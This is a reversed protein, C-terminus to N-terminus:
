ASYVSSLPRLSDSWAVPFSFVGHRVYRLVKAAYSIRVIPNSSRYLHKAVSLM